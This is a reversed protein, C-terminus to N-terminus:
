ERLRWSKLSHGGLFTTQLVPSVAALWSSKLNSSEQKFHPHGQALCEDVQALCEDVLFSLINVTMSINVGPLDNTLGAHLM